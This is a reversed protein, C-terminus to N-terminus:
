QVHYYLWFCYIFTSNSPCTQIDGLFIKNMLDRNGSEWIAKILTRINREVCFVSTHYQAAIRTYILKSVNTLALSSSDEDLLKISAILYELGLYNRKVGLEKLLMRINLYERRM